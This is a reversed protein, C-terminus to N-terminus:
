KKPAEQKKKEDPAAAPTPKEEHKAPAAGHEAKKPEPAVPRAEPYDFGANLSLLHAVL